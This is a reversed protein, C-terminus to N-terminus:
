PRSPIALGFLGRVTSCGRTQVGLIRPLRSILGLTQLEAMGKFMGGLLGGGGIPVVVWDPEGALQNVIEYSITKM